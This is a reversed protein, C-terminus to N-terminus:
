LFNNVPEKVALTPAIKANRKRTTGANSSLSGVGFNCRLRLVKQDFLIKELWKFTLYGTLKAGIM